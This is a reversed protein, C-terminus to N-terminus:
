VDSKMGKWQRIGTRGLGGFFLCLLVEKFYAPIFAILRTGVTAFTWYTDGDVTPILTAYLPFLAVIGVPLVFACLIMLRLPRLATLSGMGLGLIVAPFIHDTLGAHFPKDNQPDRYVYWDRLSHATASNGDAYWHLFVEVGAVLLYACAVYFLAFRIM